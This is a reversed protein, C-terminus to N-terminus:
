LSGGFPGIAYEIIRFQKDAEQLNHILGVEEPMAISKLKWVCTLTCTSTNNLKRKKEIKKNNNENNQLYQCPCYQKM